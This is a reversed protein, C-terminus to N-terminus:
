AEGPPADGTVEDGDEEPLIPALHEEYCGSCLYGDVVDGDDKPNVLMHVASSLPVDTGCAVCRETLM